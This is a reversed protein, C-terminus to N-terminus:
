AGVENYNSFLLSSDVYLLEGEIGLEGLGNDTLLKELMDDAFKQMFVALDVDVRAPLDDDGIWISVPLGSVSDSEYEEATGGADNEMIVQATGDGRNKEEPVLDLMTLVEDILAEPLFGDYRMAHVGNVSDDVPNALHGACKLLLRTLAASKAWRDTLKEGYTEAGLREATWPVVSWSAGDRRIDFQLGREVGLMELNLDTRILMPSTETDFGGTIEAELLLKQGGVETLANARIKADTHFSRVKALASATQAMQLRAKGCGTLGLCLALVAILLAAKKVQEM